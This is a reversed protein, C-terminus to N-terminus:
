PSAADDPPGVYVAVPENVSTHAAWTRVRLITRPSLVQGRGVLLMGSDTCLDKALVMGGRLRRLPLYAITRDEDGELVAALADLLAPDYVGDRGRMIQLARDVPRGRAELTDYDTAVRLLRAGLPIDQGGVDAAVPGRGDYRQRQFTIIRCM